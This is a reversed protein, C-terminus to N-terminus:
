FIWDLLLFLALLGAGLIFPMMYAIDPLPKRKAYRYKFWLATGIAVVLFLGAAANNRIRGDLM